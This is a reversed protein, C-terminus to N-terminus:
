DHWIIFDLAIGYSKSIEDFIETENEWFCRQINLGSEGGWLGKSDKIATVIAASVSKVTDYNDAYTTIQFRPSYGNLDTGSNHMQPNSIKQYVAYPLKTNEPAIVPYIRKAILSTVGSDHSLKYFLAAEITM